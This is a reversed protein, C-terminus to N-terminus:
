SAKCDSRREIEIGSEDIWHASVSTASSADPTIRLPIGSKALANKLDQIEGNNTASCLEM